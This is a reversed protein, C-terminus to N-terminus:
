RIMYRGCDAYNTCRMLFEGCEFSVEAGCHICPRTKKKPM